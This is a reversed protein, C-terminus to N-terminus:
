RAMPADSGPVCSDQLEFDYDYPTFTGGVLYGTQVKFETNAYDGLYAIPTGNAPMAGDVLLPNDAISVEPVNVQRACAPNTVQVSYSGIGVRRVTLGQIGTLPTGSDLDSASVAAAITPGTAGTAGRRGKVDWTVKHRGRRCRGRRDLIMEGTRNNVCASLTTPSHHKASSSRHTTSAVAYSGGSGAVAVVLAIYAVTNQQVHHLLRKKV